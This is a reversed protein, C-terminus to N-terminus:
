NKFIEEIFHGNKDYNRSFPQNFANWFIDFSPKLNKEMEIDFSDIKIRPPLIEDIKTIDSDSDIFSFGYPLLLIKYDKIHTYLIYLFIPLRAGIKELTKLYMKCSDIINKEVFWM